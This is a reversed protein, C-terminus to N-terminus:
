EEPQLVIVLEHAEVRTGAPAVVETVVGAVEAYVATEMKMAEIAFLREGSEVTKGATAAVSVIMGPMPAGVQGPDSEDAKRHVRGRAALARDAVKVTRPQGNLEFFVTRNGDEDPQSTALKSIQLTKGREIDVSIEDGPRPGYFFVPTPLRGVDGYSRRHKAFEVFVNPYMLYSALERDSLHRRIKREAEAREVQLDAPPLVAGPRQTLVERDKLVKRQLAPPFGGPPQGLEGRFLQIVSEPFAIEREPDLVDEPTLDSTVMNLAMDGVVKSTPTVKIIDGFLQNVQAYAKEVQPWRHELGMSRAQERLNTYQGGPMGHEFV